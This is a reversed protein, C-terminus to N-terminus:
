CLVSTGHMPSGVPYKFGELLSKLENDYEQALKIELDFTDM